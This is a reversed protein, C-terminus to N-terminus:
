QYSGVICSAGKFLLCIVCFWRRFTSVQPVKDKEFNTIQIRCISLLEDKFLFSIVNILWSTAKIQEDIIQYPWCEM